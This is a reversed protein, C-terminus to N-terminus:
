QSDLLADLMQVAAPRDPLENNLQARYIAEIVRAYIPGQPVKRSLLDEGSVFPPPAVEDAPIAGARAVFEECPAVPAGCDLLAARFWACLAAM